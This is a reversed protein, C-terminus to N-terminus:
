RLADYWRWGLTLEAHTDGREEGAVTLWRMGARATVWLGRSRELSTLPLDLGLGLALPLGWRGSGRVDYRGVGVNAYGHCGAALVGWMNRWVLAIFLPHVNLQARLEPAGPGVGLGVEADIIQLLTSIRGTIMVPTDYGLGRVGVGLGLYEGVYMPDRAAPEPPPVHHLPPRSSPDEPPLATADSGSLAGLVLAIVAVAARQAAM